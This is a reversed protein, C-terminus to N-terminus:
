TRDKSRDWLSLSRMLANVQEDATMQNFLKNSSTCYLLGLSFALLARGYPNLDRLEEPTRPAVAILAQRVVFPTQIVGEMNHDDARVLAKCDDAQGIKVELMRLLDPLEEELGGDIHELQLEFEHVRPDRSELWTLFQRIRRMPRFVPHGDIQKFRWKMFGLSTLWLMTDADLNPYGPSFELRQGCYPRLVTLVAVLERTVPIRRFPLLKKNM